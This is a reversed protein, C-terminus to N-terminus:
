KTVCHAPVLKTGLSGSWSTDSTNGCYDEQLPVASFRKESKGAKIRLPHAHKISDCGSLVRNRIPALCLNALIVRLLNRRPKFHYHLFAYGGCLDYAYFFFAPM